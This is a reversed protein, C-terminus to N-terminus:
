AGGAARWDQLGGIATVDSYGRQRLISQALAARKGSHCYLYIRTTKPVHPLEGRMMKAVDFNIAARAHESAYEASTRVDILVARGATVDAVAAAAPSRGQKQVLPNVSPSQASPTSGSSTAGSEGLLVVCTGGALLLVMLAVVATRISKSVISGKRETGHLPHTPAPGSSRSEAVPLEVNRTHLHARSPRAQLSFCSAAAARLWSSIRRM